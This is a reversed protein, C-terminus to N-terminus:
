HLNIKPLGMANNAFQLSSLMFWFKSSYFRTSIFGTGLVAVVEEEWVWPLCRESILAKFKSSAVSGNGACPKPLSKWDAPIDYWVFWGLLSVCISKPVTAPHAETRAGSKKHLPQKIVSLYNVRGPMMTKMGLISKIIDTSFNAWPPLHGWLYVFNFSDIVVQFHSQCEKILFTLKFTSSPILNIISFSIPFLM